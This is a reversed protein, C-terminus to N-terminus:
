PVIAGVDNEGQGFDGVGGGKAGEASSATVKTYKIGSLSTRGVQNNFRTMQLNQTFRGGEFISEVRNVRYLGTFQPTAESTFEYLGTNENLDTPFRFNLQVLPEANDFNFCGTQNDWENGRIGAVRKFTGSSQPVEMPIAFDQGLFAPDGMTQMDVNVMDGQPNTLYDYFAQVQSETETKQVNSQSSQVVGIGESLPLNPEPFTGSAGVVELIDAFKQIAKNIISGGTVSKLKTYYYGAKYDISLDLIDRNEGTYIYDFKKKVYKGWNASGGLAARAFNLIHIKYPAVHYHIIAPHSKLKNDFRSTDLKVNTLIKFWPVWPESISNDDYRTAEARDNWYDEVIKDLRSYKPSQKVLDELIKAVSTNPGFDVSKFGVFSKVIALLNNEHAFAEGISADATILYKDPYERYGNEVEEDNIKDLKKALDFLYTDLKNGTGRVTGTGRTYLFTNVTGFQTWPKALVTYKAGGADIKLESNTLRIPYRRPPIAGVIEKGNSDYGKFELTLLFPATTHNLYGCAGAAGRCKEWFSIGMPETLDMSIETFNMLKNEPNPRPFGNISVREFFIDRNKKLIENSKELYGIQEVTKENSKTTPKANYDDFDYNRSNRNFFDFQNPNDNGIGGTRAIIHHLPKGITEPNALEEPYLASLTFVYNYSAFQHLKNEDLFRKQNNITDTDLIKGTNADQTAM